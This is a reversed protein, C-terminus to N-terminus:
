DLMRLKPAPTVQSRCVLKNQNSSIYFRDTYKGTTTKVEMFYEPRADRWFQEELYGKAILISTLVGSQDQYTIDATEKGPWDDM